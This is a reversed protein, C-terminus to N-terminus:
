LGVGYKLAILDQEREPLQRLLSRLREKEQREQFSREVDVSSPWQEVHSLPEIKNEILKNRRLQERFVNRAIGLLWTTPSAIRANYKSRTKWARELTTATLDQALERHGLKYLFYNYIKSLESTYVADWDVAQSLSGLMQSIDLQNIM